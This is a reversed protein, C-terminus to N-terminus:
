SENKKEKNKSILLKGKADFTRDGFTIKGDPGEAPNTNLNMEFEELDFSMPDKEPFEVTVKVIPKDSM